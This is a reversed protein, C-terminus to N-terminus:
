GLIEIRWSKFQISRCSLSSNSWGSIVLLSVSAAGAEGGGASLSVVAGDGLTVGGGGTDTMLGISFSGSVTM